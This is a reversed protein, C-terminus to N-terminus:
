RKGFYTIIAILFSFAMDVFPLNKMIWTVVWFQEALAQFIANSQVFSWYVNSLMMCFFVSLVIVIIVIPYFAPHMASYYSLIGVIFFMGVVAILFGYNFTNFTNNMWTRTNATSDNVLTSNSNKWADMVVGNAFAGIIIFIAILFIIILGFFIDLVFGKRM